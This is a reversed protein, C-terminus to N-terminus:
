GWGKRQGEGGQGQREKRVEKGRGKRGTEETKIKKMSLTHSKLPLCAVQYNLEPKNQGM